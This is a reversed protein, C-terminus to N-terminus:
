FKFMIKKYDEFSMNRHDHKEISDLQALKEDLAKDFLSQKAKDPPMTDYPYGAGELAIKKQEDTFTGLNNKM